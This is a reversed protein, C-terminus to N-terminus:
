RNRPLVPSDGAEWLRVTADGGASAIRTGDPSIAVDWVDRSHGRLVLIEHGFAPDWIRITRDSAASVLRRSDATFALQNILLSHGKLEHLPEDGAVDWIKISIESGTTALWHGDPSLAIAQIGNPPHAKKARIQRGSPIEWFIVFGDAAGSVLTKGDRSFAAATVAHIHGRLVRIERGSPVDWLRITRDNSASALIKGDPSFALRRVADTHGELAHIPAGTAVDWIRVSRDDGAAAARHGDPSIAVSAILATHGALTRIPRGAAVDWITVAQDLGASALYSGDSGFAVSRVTDKAKLARPEQSQSLDWLRVTFDFSASALHKGDPSFDVGTIPETHGRIAGTLHGTDPDWFTIAARSHVSSALTKGDRSFVLVRVADQNERDKMTRLLSGAAVDWITITGDDAAAALIRGDWRLAISDGFVGSEPKLPARAPKGTSVDWFRISPEGGGGSFLTKGDPSFAIGSFWSERHDQLTFRPLGTAVDWIRLTGDTASSALLKADPSFALRYVGRTHATFTRIAQGTAADWLTILNGNSSALQTGDPHFAVVEVPKDVAVTRIVRGTEADWLKITRDYGASALRRGDPSYVVRQVPETHGELARGWSRALRDLYNWEFGRLDSKGPPPRTGDLQRLVGAVNADSWDREALNLQASYAAHRAIDESKLAEDRAALALLWHGVIGAIALLSLMVVAASLVAIEPRRRAWKVARELKTAPRALIPRGEIWRNLDDALALAGAYRDKPDKKLCKLCIAELDRNVRPLGVHPAELQGLTVARIVEKISTGRVPAHGTLLSYLVTGLGYVDTATTIASVSGAAQEPSMYAPTGEVPGDQRLETAGISESAERVKMTLGFDIVYPEGSQDVLINSPKLDRHLIGREHAHHIALACRVLLRAIARPENQFRSRCRDLTLGDILKMSYYLVGQHEGSDLVPVIHPHDLAAVARAEIQFLRAMEASFAGPKIMKLAVDRELRMQRAKFVVGMGGAGLKELLLYDGLWVAGRAPSPGGDMHAFSAAFDEPGLTEPMEIPSTAEGASDPGETEPLPERPETRPDAPAFDAIPAPGRDDVALNGKALRLALLDARGPAQTHDDVAPRRTWLGDVLPDPPGLAGAGDNLEGGPLEPEAQSPQPAPGATSVDLLVMADPCSPQYDAWTPNEGQTRRLEQDLLVLELWLAPRLEPPAVGLYDEIRRPQSAKWDAEYQDCREDVYRLREDDYQSRLRNAPALM